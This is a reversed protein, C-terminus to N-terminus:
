RAAFHVAFEAATVVRNYFAVEDIAGDFGLTDNGNFQACGIAFRFNHATPEATLTHMGNPMGNVYFTVVNSTGNLSIGLHSWTGLSIQPSQADPTNDGSTGTGVRFRLQVAAGVAIAGLSYGMVHTTGMGLKGLIEEGVAPPLMDPKVWAELSFSDSASVNFAMSSTVTTCATVGNSTGYDVATNPDNAFAGPVGLVVPGRHAGVVLPDVENAAPDVPLKEGLRWYAMPASGLVAARYGGSADTASDSMGGDGTCNGQANPDARCFNNVCTLGTPCAGANCTYSCDGARPSYCGAGIATAAGLLRALSM